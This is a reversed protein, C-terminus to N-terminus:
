RFLLGNGLERQRATLFEGPLKPARVLPCTLLFSGVLLELGVGTVSILQLVLRDLRGTVVM